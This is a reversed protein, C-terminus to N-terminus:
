KENNKQRDLQKGAQTEFQIIADSIKDRLSNFNKLNFSARLFPLHGNKISDDQHAWAIWGRKENLANYYADLYQSESGEPCNAPLQKMCVFVEWKSNFSVFHIAYDPTFKESGQNMEFYNSTIDECDSFSIDLSCKPISGLKIKASYDATISFSARKLSNAELVQALIAPATHQDQASSNIKKMAFRRNKIKLNITLTLITNSSSVHIGVFPALVILTKFKIEAWLSSYRKRAFPCLVRSKWFWAKEGTLGFYTIIQSLMKAGHVIRM